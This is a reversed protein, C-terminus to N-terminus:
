EGFMELLEKANRPAAAGPDNNFYCYVSHGADLWAAITNAWIALEDRTYLWRNPGAPKHFRIYVLDTTTELPSHEGGLDYICLAVRHASLLDYVERDFWTPDRFEFAYRHQKPLHQLFADLREVNKHWRPPLQFLIPGLRDGLAEIRDFLMPIHQEPDRLRKMHTIFRSAKIVFIFGPPVTKRWSEVTERSPLRYFTNNVEVTSFHRAYIALHNQPPEGADYFTGRWSQYSWGSTGVHLRDRREAIHEKSM